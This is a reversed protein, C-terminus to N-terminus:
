LQKLQNLLHDVSPNKRYSAVLKGEKNYLAAFPTNQLKYYQRLFHSSGESGVRINPFQATQYKKTFAAVDPLPTFTVMIVEASAFSTAKTFFANMLTHCHDCDPAFYILLVPKGKTIEASNFHRGNSLTMWFQPLQNSTQASLNQLLVFFAALLLLLTSLRKVLMLM